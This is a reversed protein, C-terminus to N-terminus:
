LVLDLVHHPFSFGISLLVFRYAAKAKLVAFAYRNTNDAGLQSECTSYQIPLEQKGEDPLFMSPHQTDLKQKHTDPMLISM